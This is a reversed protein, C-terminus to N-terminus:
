GSSDDAKASSSLHKLARERKRQSLTAIRDISEKELAKETIYGAEVAANYIKEGVDTRIIVTSWGDPAEVGGVSIDAFYATFDTCIHCNKRACDRIEKLPIEVKSGDKLYISLNGKKINFKKVTQPDINLQNRIKSEILCKFDFNEMCFLGITLSVLSAPILQSTQNPPISQMKRLTLIQCPTGVFALKIWDESIKTKKTLDDVILDYPRLANFSPSLTYRTGAAELLEQYNGVIAPVPKWTDAVKSVIAGHIVRHQLAYTLLATVVGGDQCVNRIAPDTAKALCIRKYQGIPTDVRFKEETEKLLFSTKPCALLCLKCDVCKQPIEGEAAEKEVLVPQDDKLELCNIPCIAVCGSCGTCNGTDIVNAKLEEFAKM